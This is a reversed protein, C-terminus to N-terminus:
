FDSGAVKLNILNNAETESVAGELRIRPEVQGVGLKPVAYDAFRGLYAILAALDHRANQIAAESDLTDFGSLASQAYYRVQAPHLHLAAIM